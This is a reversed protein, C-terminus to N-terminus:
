SLSMRELGLDVSDYMGVRCETEAVDLGDRVNGPEGSGPHPLEHVATPM